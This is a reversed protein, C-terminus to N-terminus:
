VIEENAANLVPTMAIHKIFGHNGFDNETLYQVHNGGIGYAITSFYQTLHDAVKIQDLELKQDIKLCIDEKANQKNKVDLFPTFTMYSKRPDLKVSNSVNKWYAKLAIKARNPQKM